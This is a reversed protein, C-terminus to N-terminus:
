LPGAQRWADYGGGEIAWFDDIGQQYYDLHQCQVTIDGTTAESVLAQGALFRYFEATGSLISKLETLNPEPTRVIYWHGAFQRIHSAEVAFINIGRDAIIFERLFYDAGHCRQGAQEPAMSSQNTLHQYLRRLLDVCSKDVCERCLRTIVRTM